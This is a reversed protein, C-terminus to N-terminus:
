GKRLYERSGKQREFPVAEITGAETLASVDDGQVPYISLAKRSGNYDQVVVEFENWHGAPRELTRRYRYFSPQGNLGEERTVKSPHEIVAMVVSEDAFWATSGGRLFSKRGDFRVRGSSVDDQLQNVLHELHGGQRPNKKSREGVHRALKSSVAVQRATPYVAVSGDDLVERVSHGMPRTQKIYERWMERQWRPEVEPHNAIGVTAQWEQDLDHLINPVGADSYSEIVMCGCSDHSKEGWRALVALAFVSVVGVVLVM